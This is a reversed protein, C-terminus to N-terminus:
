SMPAFNELTQRRFLKLINVAEEFRWHIMDDHAANELLIAINRYIEPFTENEIMEIMTLTIKDALPVKRNSQLIKQIDQLLTVSQSRVKADPHQLNELVKNMLKEIPEHQDRICM